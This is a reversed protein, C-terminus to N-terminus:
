QLNHTNSCWDKNVKNKLNGDLNKKRYKVKASVSCSDKQIVVKFRPDYVNDVTGLYNKSTINRLTITQGVSQSHGAPWFEKGKM